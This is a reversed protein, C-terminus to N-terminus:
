LLSMPFRGMLSTYDPIESSIALSKTELIPRIPIPISVLKPENPDSDSSDTIKM